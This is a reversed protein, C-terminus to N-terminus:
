VVSHPEGINWLRTGVSVLVLVLLRWDLLAWSTNPAAQVEDKAAPELQEPAVLKSNEDEKDGGPEDHGKRRRIAAM